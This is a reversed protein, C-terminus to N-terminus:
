WNSPEVILQDFVATSLTGDAHSSVPLGVYVTSSMIITVPEGIQTWTVGDPSCYATLSSGVRVLKVWYPAVLDAVKTAESSGGTSARWQYVVGNGPTVLVAANRSDANMTERVMVGAKAWSDTDELNKVRAVITVDGVIAQYAYHFGDSTGYIDGGAGQITWVGNAYAASGAPTVNGIDMIAWPSPISGAPDTASESMTVNASYAPDALSATSTMNVPETISNSAIQNSSPSPATGEVQAQVASAMLAQTWVQFQDMMGQWASGGNLRAGIFFTSAGAGPANSMDHSGTLQLVGDRYLKVNDTAQTFDVTLAVHHWMGDCVADIGNNSTNGGSPTGTVTWWSSGDYLVWHARDAYVYGDVVNNLGCFRRFGYANSSNDLKLWSAITMGDTTSANGISAVSANNAVQIRRSTGSFDWANGQPAGSTVLVPLPDTSSNIIATTNGASDIVNAADPLEDLRYDMLPLPTQGVPVTVSDLNLHGWGGTADDVAVFFAEQGLYASANWIVERYTESNHGTASFLTSGDSVRMLMFKLQTEINGGAILFRIRGDGAITFRGSTMTGTDADGGINYGWLHYM